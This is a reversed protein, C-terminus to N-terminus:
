VLLVGALTSELLSPLRAPPTKRDTQRGTKRDEQCGTQMRLWKQKSLKPPFDKQRDTLRNTPRDKQCGTSM